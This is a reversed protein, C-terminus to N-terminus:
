CNKKLLAPNRGSAYGIATETPKMGLERIKGFWFSVLLLLDDDM